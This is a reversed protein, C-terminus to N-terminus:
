SYGSCTRIPFIGFHVTGQLTPDGLDLHLGTGNASATVNHFADFTVPITPPIEPIVTLSPVVVPLEQSVAVGSLGASLGLAAVLGLFLSRKM